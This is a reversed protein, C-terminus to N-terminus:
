SACDAIDLDQSRRAWVSTVLYSTIEMEADIFTRTRGMM